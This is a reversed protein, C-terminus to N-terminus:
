MAGPRAEHTSAFIQSSHVSELWLVQRTTGLSGSGKLPSLKSSLAAGTQM